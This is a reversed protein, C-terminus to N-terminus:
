LGSFLRTVLQIVTSSTMPFLMVFLMCKHFCPHIFSLEISHIDQSRTRLYHVSLSLVLLSTQPFVSFGKLRIPCTHWSCFARISCCLASSPIPRLIIYHLWMMFWHSMLGIIDHTILTSSSICPSMQQLLFCMCRQGERGGAGVGTHVLYLQSHEYTYNFAAFVPDLKVFQLSLICMCM